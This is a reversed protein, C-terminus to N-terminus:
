VLLVHLEHFWLIIAPRRLPIPQGHWDALELLIVEHQQAVELRMDDATGIVPFRFFPYQDHRREAFALVERQRERRTESRM